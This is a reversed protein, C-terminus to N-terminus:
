LVDGYEDDAAISPAWQQLTMSGEAIREVSDRSIRHLAGCCMAVYRLGRRGDITEAIEYIADMSTPVRYVEEQTGDNLHERRHYLYDGIWRRNLNCSEDLGDIHAVYPHGPYAVRLEIFEYNTEM